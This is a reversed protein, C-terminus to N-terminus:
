TETQKELFAQLETKRYRVRRGIKTAKLLGRQRYYNLTRCANKPSHDEDLLLFIAAELPTMLEPFEQPRQPWLPEDSKSLEIKM